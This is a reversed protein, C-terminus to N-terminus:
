VQRLRQGVQIVRHSPTMVVVRRGEDVFSESTM